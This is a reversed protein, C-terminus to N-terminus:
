ISSPKAKEPPPPVVFEDFAALPYFAPFVIKDLLICDLKWALFESIKFIDKLKSTHGIQTRIDM